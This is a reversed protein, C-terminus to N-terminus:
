GRKSLRIKRLMPKSCVFFFFFYQSFDPKLVFYRIKRVQEVLKIKSNMKQPTQPQATKDVNENPLDDTNSKKKSARLSRNSEGSSRLSKVNENSKHKGVDINSNRNTLNRSQKRTPVANEAM